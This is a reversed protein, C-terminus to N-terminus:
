KKRKLDLCSPFCTLLCGLMGLLKLTNPMELYQVENKFIKIKNMYKYLTQTMEGRKEGGGM